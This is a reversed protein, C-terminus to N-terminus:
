LHDNPRRILAILMILFAFGALILIGYFLLTSTDTGGGTVPVVVTVAQTVVPPMMTPIPTNQYNVSNVHRTTAMSPMAYASLFVALLLLICITILSRKKM